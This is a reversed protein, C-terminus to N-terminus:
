EKDDFPKYVPHGDTSIDITGFDVEKNKLDRYIVVFSNFRDEQNEGLGFNVVMGDVHFLISNDEFLVAKDVPIGSLEFLQIFRIVNQLVYLKQARLSRGASYSDVPLGEIRYGEPEESLVGLVVMDEDVSLIIDLYNLTIFHTRYEIDFNVVSPFEKTVTVEKVFPHALLGNRAKNLNVEYYFQGVRVGSYLELVEEDMDFDRNFNVTQIRFFPGQYAVFAISVFLIFLVIFVILRKM